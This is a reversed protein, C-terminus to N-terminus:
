GGRGEAEVARYVALTKAATAEWTFGKARRFGRQRLDAALDADDLVRAMAGALAEPDGPPVLLGADGVVEPLSSTYAAIVPTGCAMAELIPLGFGEYLSPLVFLAAAAYLARMEPVGLYGERGVAEGLGLRSILEGIEESARGDGGALVLRYRERADPLRAFARLLTAVDKRPELSGCFLVFGERGPALRARVAEQVPPPEPFFEPGVGLPVVAIREPAVGFCAGVDAAGSRSHVIVRDARRATRQTKASALRQGLRRGALRSLREASLDHITVVSGLRGCARLRFNTGHFVDVRDRCVTRRVSWRGAVVSTWRAAPLGLAATELPRDSYLRYNNEGDLAGLAAVLHTVYWGVGGRRRVIPDAEIGIRM